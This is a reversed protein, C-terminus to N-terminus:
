LSDTGPVGSPREGEDADSEVSPERTMIDVGIREEGEDDEEDEADAEDDAADADEDEDLIYEGDDDMSLFVGPREADAEAATMGGSVEAEDKTIGESKEKDAGREVGGRLREAVDAASRVGGENDRVDECKLLSEEVRSEDGIMEGEGIM